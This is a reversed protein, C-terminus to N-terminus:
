DSSELMDIHATRKTVLWFSVINVLTCLAGFFLYLLPEKYRESFPM